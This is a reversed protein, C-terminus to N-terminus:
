GVYWVLGISTVIQCQNSCACVGTTNLGRVVLTLIENEGRFEPFVELLGMAASGTGLTVFLKGVFISRFARSMLAFRLTSNRLSEGSSPLM